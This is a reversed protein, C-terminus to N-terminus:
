KTGRSGTVGIPRSASDSSLDFLWSNQSTEEKTEFNYKIFDPINTLPKMGHNLIPVKEITDSTVEIGSCDWVHIIKRSPITLKNDPIDLPLIWSNRDVIKNPTEGYNVKTYELPPNDNGKIKNLDITPKYLTAGRASEGGRQFNIVDRSFAKTISNVVIENDTVDIDFTVKRNTNTFNRKSYIFVNIIYNIRDDNITKEVRDINGVLLNKNHTINIDDVVKNLLDEVELKLLPDMADISYSEFYENNKNIFFIVAIFIVVLLLIVLM